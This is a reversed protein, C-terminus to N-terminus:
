IHPNFQIEAELVVLGHGIKFNNMNASNGLALLTENGFSVWPYTIYLCNKLIVENRIQSLLLVVEGSYTLDMLLEQNTNALDYKALSNLVDPILEHLISTDYFGLM